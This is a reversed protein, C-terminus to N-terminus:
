TSPTFARYDSRSVSGGALTSDDRPVEVQEGDLTFAVQGIGPRATATFVIQALAILQDSGGIDAFAPTLDVAAVGGESGVSAIGDADALASVLDAGSERVTPGIELEALVARLAADDLRREVPVLREDNESYLYIEVAVRGAPSAGSVPERDPDLLGFPVDARTTRRASDETPVGCAALVVILGLLPALHRRMM